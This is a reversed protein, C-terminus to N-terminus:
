RIYDPGVIVLGEGADDIGDELVDDVAEGPVFVLSPTADWVPVGSGGAATAPLWAHIAPATIPGTKAMAAAAAAINKKRRRAAWFCAAALAWGM